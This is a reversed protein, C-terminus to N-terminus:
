CRYRGIDVGTVILDADTLVLDIDTVVLNYVLDAKTVVPQEGQGHPGGGVGCPIASHFAGGPHLSLGRPEVGGTM